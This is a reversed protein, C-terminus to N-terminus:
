QSGCLPTAIEQKAGSFRVMQRSIGVTAESGRFSLGPFQDSFKFKVYLRAINNYPRDNVARRHSTVFEGFSHAFVQSKEARAIM